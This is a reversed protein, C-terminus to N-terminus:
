GNKKEEEEECQVTKAATVAEKQLRRLSMEVGGYEKNIVHKGMLLYMAYFLSIGSLVIIGSFTKTLLSYFKSSLHLFFPLLVLTAIFLAYLIGFLLNITKTREGMEDFWTYLNNKVSSHEKEDWSRNESLFARTTFWEQRLQSLWMRLGQLVFASIVIVLTAFYISSNVKDDLDTENVFAKVFTDLSNQFLLFFKSILELHIYYLPQYSCYILIKECYSSCLIFCFIIFFLIVLFIVVLAKIKENM